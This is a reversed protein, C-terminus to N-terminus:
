SQSTIHLDHTRTEDVVGTTEM